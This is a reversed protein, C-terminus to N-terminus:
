ADWEYGSNEWSIEGIFKRSVMTRGVHKGTFDVHKMMTWQWFNCWFDALTDMEPKAKAKAKPAAAKTGKTAKAPAPAEAPIYM